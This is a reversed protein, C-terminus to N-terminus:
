SCCAKRMKDRGGSGCKRYLELHCSQPCVTIMIVNPSKPITHHMFDWLWAASFDSDSSCDAQSFTGPVFIFSVWLSFLLVISYSAERLCCFKLWFLSVFKRSWIWGGMWATILKTWKGILNNLKGFIACFNGPLAWEKKVTVLRQAKQSFDKVNFNLFTNELFNKEQLKSLSIFTMANMLVTKRKCHWLIDSWEKSLSLLSFPNGNPSAGM